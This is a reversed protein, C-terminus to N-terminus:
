ARQRKAVEAVALSGSMEAERWVTDRAHDDPAAGALARWATLRMRDSPHERGFRYALDAAEDGGLAVALRLFTESPGHGLVKTVCFGAKSGKVPEFICHSDWSQAGHVHSLTLSVSLSAPPQLSRVDRIRRYHVMRGPELRYRHCPRLLVREGKWGSLTDPDCTYDDVEYGPGFYGLTLFDVNHNHVIGYGLAAPASARLVHDASSPWLDAALIFNGRQPRALLVRNTGSGQPLPMDARAPGSRTLMAILADGLFDPNNGLRKLWNAAHSLSTDEAPDFGWANLEAICEDLSAPTPDRVEITTAM